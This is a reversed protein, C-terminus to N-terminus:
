RLLEREVLRAMHRHPAMDLPGMAQLLDMAVVVLTRTPLVEVAVVRRPDEVEVLRM